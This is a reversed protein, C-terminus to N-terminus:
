VRYASTRHVISHESGFVEDQTRHLDGVRLIHVGIGSIGANIHHEEQRVFCRLLCFGERLTRFCLPICVIRLVPFKYDKEVPLDDATDIQLATGPFGAILDAPDDPVVVPSEAERGFGGTGHDGIGKVDKLRFAYLRM